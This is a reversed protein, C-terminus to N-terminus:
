NEGAVEKGWKGLLDSAQYAYDIRAELKAIRNMLKFIAIGNLICAVVLVIHMISDLM